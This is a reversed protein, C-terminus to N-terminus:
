RTKPGTKLKWPFDIKNLEAVKDKPLLGEKKKKRQVACWSALKAEKVNKVGTLPDRGHKKRFALLDDRHAFWSREFSSQRPHGERKWPFGIANLKKIHDKQMSNMKRKYRQATCWKALEKEKAKNTNPDPWRDPNAKRFQILRQYFQEWKM